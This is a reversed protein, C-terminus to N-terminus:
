GEIIIRKEFSKFKNGIVIRVFILIKTKAWNRNKLFIFVVIAYVMWAMTLIQNVIMLAIVDWM